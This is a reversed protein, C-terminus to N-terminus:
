IKKDDRRLKFGNDLLHDRYLRVDIGSEELAVRRLLGMAELLNPRLLRSLPIQSTTLSFALNPDKLVAQRFSADERVKTLFEHVLAQETPNLPEVGRENEAM